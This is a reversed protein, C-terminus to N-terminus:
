EFSLETIATDTYHTGAYVDTIEFIIWSVVGFRSTLNSEQWSSDDKLKIILEEGNSAKARLKHVRSNRLYLRKSKAYGNRIKLSNVQAPNDLILSFHEGIGQGSVGEVWATSKNNDRTNKPQYNISGDSSLHSSFCLDAANSPTFIAICNRLASEPPSSHKAPLKAKSSRTKQEQGNYRNWGREVASLRQHRPPHTVSGDASLGTWLSQSETLTAGLAALAFGAYEDAELEIPPKSGNGTITHGQLHHGVEHAMVAYLEWKANKNSKYTSLWEPNFALYREEDIIVAAANDVEETAVVQFNPLLGSVSIIENVVQWVQQVSFASADEYRPKPISIEKCIGISCVVQPKNVEQALTISSTICIFLVCFIGSLRM